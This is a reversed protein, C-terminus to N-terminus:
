RGVLAGIVKIPTDIDGLHSLAGMLGFGWGQRGPQKRWIEGTQVSVRKAINRISGPSDPGSLNRM